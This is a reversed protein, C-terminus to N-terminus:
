SKLVRRADGEEDLELLAEQFDAVRYGQGMSQVRVLVRGEESEDVRYGEVAGAAVKDVFERRKSQRALALISSAAGSAFGSLALLRILDLATEADPLSSRLMSSTLWGPGLVTVVVLAVLSIASAAFGVVFEGREEGALGRQALRQGWAIPLGFSLLVLVLAPLWFMAGFTAGLLASVLFKGIFSQQSLDRFAFLLGASIAANLAALPVSLLWGTRLKTNGVTNRWRLLLAWLMGVVLTSGGTAMVVPLSHEFAGFFVVATIAAMSLGVAFVNLNRLAALSRFARPLAQSLM